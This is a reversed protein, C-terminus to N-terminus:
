IAAVPTQLNDGVIPLYVLFFVLFQPFFVGIKRFTNLLRLYFREVFIFMLKRERIKVGEHFAPAILVLLYERLDQVAPYNEAM